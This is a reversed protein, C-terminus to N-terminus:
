RDGYFYYTARYPVRAVQAFNEKSCNAVPMRGGETDVRQISRVAGYVGRGSTSKAKLLLHPIADANPSKAQSRVEAVVKSGDPAEWTPGGYHKGLDRGGRDVLRAEPGKFRWQYGTSSDTVCEYLQFGSALAELVVRESAPAQLEAPVAPPQPSAACGALAAAALTRALHSTRAFM